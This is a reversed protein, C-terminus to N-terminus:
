TAEIPLFPLCVSSIYIENGNLTSGPRYFRGSRRGRRDPYYRALCYDPYDLCYDRFQEMSFNVPEQSQHIARFWKTENLTLNCKDNVDYDDHWCLNESKSHHPFAARIQIVKHYEEFEQIRAIGRYNGPLLLRIRPLWQEIGMGSVRGLSLGHRDNDM